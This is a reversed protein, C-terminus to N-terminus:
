ATSKRGEAEALKRYDLYNQLILIASVKDVLSKRERRSRDGEILAQTAVNPDGLDTGIQQKLLPLTCLGLWVVPVAALAWARRVDLGPLSAVGVVLGLVLVPFFVIGYRGDDIEGLNNLLALM